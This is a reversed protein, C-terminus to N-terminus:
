CYNAPLIGDVSVLQDLRIVLGADTKLFEEGKHTWIEMIQALIVSKAGSEAVFVIECAKQLTAMAELEDYFDCNIPTYSM